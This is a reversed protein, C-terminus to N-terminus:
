GFRKMTRVVVCNSAKRADPQIDVLYERCAIEKRGMAGRRTDGVIIERCLRRTRQLPLWDVDVDDPM